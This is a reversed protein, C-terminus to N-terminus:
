IRLSKKFRDMQESILTGYITIFCKGSRIKLDMLPVKEFHVQVCQSVDVEEDHPTCVQKLSMTFKKVIM